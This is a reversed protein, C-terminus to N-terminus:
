ARIGIIEIMLYLSTLGFVIALGRKNRSGASQM